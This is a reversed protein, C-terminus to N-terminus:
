PHGPGIEDLRDFLFAREADSVALDAARAYASAAEDWRGLRRLGAGIQELDAAREPV